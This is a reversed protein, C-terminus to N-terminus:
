ATTCVALRIRFNIAPAFAPLAILFLPMAIQKAGPTRQPPFRQPADGQLLSKQLSKQQYQLSRSLVVKALRTAHVLLIAQSVALWPRHSCYLTSITAIKKSQRPCTSM